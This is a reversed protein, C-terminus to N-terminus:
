ITQEERHKMTDICWLNYWWITSRDIISCTYRHAVRV